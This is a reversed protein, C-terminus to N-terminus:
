DAEPPLKLASRHERDRDREARFVLIAGGAAIISIVPILLPGGKKDPRGLIFQQYRGVVAILLLLFILAWTAIIRERNSFIGSSGAM